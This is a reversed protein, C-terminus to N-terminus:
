RFAVPLDRLCLQDTGHRGHTSDETAQITLVPKGIVAPPQCTDSLAFRLPSAHSLPPVGKVDAVDVTDATDAM